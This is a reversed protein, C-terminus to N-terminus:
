GIDEGQLGWWGIQARGFAPFITTLFNFLICIDDIILRYENVLVYAASSALLSILVLYTLFLRWTLIIFGM